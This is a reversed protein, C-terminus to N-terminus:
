KNYLADRGSKLGYTIDGSLNRLIEAREKSTQAEILNANPGNASLIKPVIDERNIHYAYIYHGDKDSKKIWFHHKQPM